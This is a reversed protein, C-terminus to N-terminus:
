IEVYVRTFLKKKEPDPVLRQWFEYYQDFFDEKSLSDFVKYYRWPYGGFLEDGGDGTFLIKVGEKNVERALIAQSIFSHTPLPM